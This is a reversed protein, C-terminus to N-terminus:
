KCVLNVPIEVMFRTGSEPNSEFWVRGKLYNEGLLKISYAGIGHGQGKASAGFQFITDQLASPICSQNHVTFILHKKSVVVSLKIHENPSSAEVANKVMNFIVRDLIHCDTQIITTQGIYSIDLVCGRAVCAAQAKIEINKLFCDVDLAALKVPLDGQEAHMLDRQSVIEEALQGSINKLNKLPEQEESDAATELLLQVYEDMAGALNILDHFFIRDMLQRRKTDTIDVVFVAVYHEGEFVFPSATEALALMVNSSLTLEVEQSIVKNTAFVDNISKRFKCNPCNPSTGCGSEAHVANVCSFMDGPRVYHGSLNDTAHEHFDANSFIVDLNRNVVIFSSATAELINATSLLSKIYTKIEGKNQM